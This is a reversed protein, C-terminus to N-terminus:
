YVECRSRTNRNDVKFLYNGAPTFATFKVQLCIKNGRHSNVYPYRIPILLLWWLYETFLSNKFIDCHESSFM